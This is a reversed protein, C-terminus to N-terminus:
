LTGRVKPRRPGHSDLKVLDQRFSAADSVVGVGLVGDDVETHDDRLVLVTPATPGLTGRSHTQDRQGM